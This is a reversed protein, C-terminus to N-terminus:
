EEEIDMIIEKVSVNDIWRDIPDEYGLTSVGYKREWYAHFGILKDLVFIAARLRISDSVGDKVLLQRLTNIAEEQILILKFTSAKTIVQEIDNLETQFDEDQAMWRYLTRESIGCKGSAEKITKSDLITYIANRKKLREITYKTEKHDMTISGNIVEKV